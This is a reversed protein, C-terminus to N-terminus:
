GLVDKVTEALQKLSFPKALFLYDESGASVSERFMEEAYGSIFIIRLGPCLKRAERVLTPGDMHPMVVDSILLDVTDESQRLLELAAEGSHAQMVTYGKNTLARAAFLRVADEDEVIMVTGKGTLDKSAEQAQEEPQEDSTVPDTHAPLFIRFVAGQGAESDAFIFGGTQKVIGYVTSLGLGTGQGVSKTTFFPDFIKGRIDEPIGHGTDTIEIMVYDTPPMISYATVQRDQPGVARTRITLRGGQPMADRANVALNIIVQELQGQDVRVPALDRGHIMQLEITEGILRRLLNSLDALIDTIQLVKPRMTQQRSFALLQRVLNAARNANQKIQMIESFSQDGPGHRVLLLDCFGIIATLLNNFDHAVGGALQGVAQMKQVQVFQRELSKHRSTDILHVLFRTDSGRAALRSLHMEGSRPPEMSLSIEMAGTPADGAELRAMLDRMRTEDESAMHNFVTDPTASDRGPAIRNFARNSAHLAGTPDIIALGVPATEFLAGALASEEDVTEFADLRRTVVILRYGSELAVHRKLLKAGDGGRLADRKRDVLGLRTLQPVDDVASVCLWRALAPSIWLIEDEPDVLCHGTDPDDLIADLDDLGVLGATIAQLDLARWLLMNQAPAAALRLRTQGASIETSDSLGDLAAARLRALADRDADSEALREPRPAGFRALWAANAIVPRGARTTLAAPEELADLLDRAAPAAQRRGAALRTYPRLFYLAIAGGLTLILGSATLVTAPASEALLVGATGAAALVALLSGWVAAGRVRSQGLSSSAAPLQREDLLDAILRYGDTTARSRHRFGLM